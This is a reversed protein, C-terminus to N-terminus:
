FQNPAIIGKHLTFSDLPLGFERAPAAPSLTDTFSIEVSQHRFRNPWLMLVVLIAALAIILLTTLPKRM